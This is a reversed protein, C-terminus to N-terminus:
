QLSKRRVRRIEGLRTHTARHLSLVQARAFFHIGSLAFNPAAEEGKSKSDSNSKYGFKEAEKDECVRPDKCCRSAVAFVAFLISLFTPDANSSRPSSYLQEYHLTFERQDLVPFVSHIQDFYIRVLMKALDYPPFTVTEASPLGNSLNMGMSSHLWSLDESNADPPLMALELARSASQSGLSNHADLFLTVSASPGLYRLSRSVSNSLLFFFLLRFTLTHTCHKSRIEVSM